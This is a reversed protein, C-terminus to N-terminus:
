LTTSLRIIITTLSWALCLWSICCHATCKRCRKSFRFLLTSFLYLTELVSHKSNRPFCARLEYKPRTAARSESFCFSQQSIRSRKAELRSSSCFARSSKSKVCCAVILSFVTMASDILTLKQIGGNVISCGIVVSM